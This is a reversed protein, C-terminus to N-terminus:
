SQVTLNNLHQRAYIGSCLALPLGKGEIKGAEVINEPWLGGRICANYEDADFFLRMERPVSDRPSAQPIFHRAAGVLRPLFSPAVRCRDAESKMGARARAATVFLVCRAPYAITGLATEGLSNGPRIGM